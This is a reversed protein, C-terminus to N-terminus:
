NFAKSNAVLPNFKQGLGAWINKLHIRPSHAPIVQEVLKPQYFDESEWSWLGSLGLATYIINAQFDGPIATQWGEANKGELERLSVIELLRSPLANPQPHRSM